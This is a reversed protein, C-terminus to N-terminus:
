IGIVGVRLYAQDEEIKKRAEETKLEEVDWAAWTFRGHLFKAEESTAWVAYHGPLNVDDWEFAEAPVGAKAVSETYIIGPHFSLVQMDDPLIGRAIMQVTMTGANKTAGYGPYTTVASAEHIAMTSINVLSLKQGAARKKQHYFRDILDLNAGVNTVFSPWLEEYGLELVSAPRDPIHAANLVLVDVVIGDSELQAWAKETASRDSADLAQGVFRTNPHEKSLAKVAENLPGERRGTLIVTAAKALAFAHCIALGIGAAGGTVYVVRGKQSLEPRSPSIAAYPTKHVTKVIDPKPFIPGPVTM